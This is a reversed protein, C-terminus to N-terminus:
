GSQSKEHDEESWRPLPSVKFEPMVTEKWMRDLENNVIM